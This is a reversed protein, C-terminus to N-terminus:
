QPQAYPKAARYIAGEYKEHEDIIRDLAGSLHIETIANSLMRRLEHEDRRVAMVIPFVRLPPGEARRLQGPNHATFDSYTFLDYIVADAKGLSVAVFMEAPSMLQPLEHVHARPFMERVITGNASGELTAITMGPDNLATFDGDFRDDGGRVFVHLPMYFLPRAFDSGRAREGTMWIGSCMTDIRGSALAAPYDGLSLEEAWQVKLGLKGAAETVADHFIGSKEGTNPDVGLAPYWSFYGCRLTGTKMVRDYVEGALSPTALLALVLVALARM